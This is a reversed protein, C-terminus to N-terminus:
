VRSGSPERRSTEAGPAGARPCNAHLRPSASVAARRCQTSAMRWTSSSRARGPPLRPRRGDHFAYALLALLCRLAEVRGRVKEEPAFCPNVSGTTAPLILSAKAISSRQRSLLRLVGRCGGLRRRTKNCRAPPKDAKRKQADHHALRSSDRPRATAGSTSSGSARSSLTAVAGGTWGSVLRGKGCVRKPPLAGLIPRLPGVQFQGLGLQRIRVLAFWALNGLSALRGYSHRTWDPPRRGRWFPKRGLRALPLNTAKSSLLGATDARGTSTLAVGLAPFARPRPWGSWRV